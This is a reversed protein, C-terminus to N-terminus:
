VKIRPAGELSEGCEPCTMTDGKVPPLLCYECHEEGCGCPKYRPCDSQLGCYGHCLCENKTTM